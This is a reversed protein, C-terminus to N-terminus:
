RRCAPCKGTQKKCAQGRSHGPCDKKCCHGADGCLSYCGGQILLKKGDVLASAIKKRAGDYIAQVTTRAVDMQVACEAQTLNLYDILRITEYEDITMMVAEEPEFACPGFASAAPLGCVRRQKVPRSM